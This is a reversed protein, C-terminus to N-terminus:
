AAAAANLKAPLANAYQTIDGAGLCVVIDGPRAEGRVFDALADLSALKSAGAHGAKAIAAM